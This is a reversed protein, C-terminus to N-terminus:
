SLRENVSGGANEARCKQYAPSQRTAIQSPVRYGRRALNCMYEPSRGLSRLTGPPDHTEEFCRYFYSLRAGRAYSMHVPSSLLQAPGGGGEAAEPNGSRFGM